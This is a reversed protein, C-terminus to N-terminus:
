ELHQARMFEDARALGLESAKKMQKRASARDGLRLYAVGLGFRVEANAVDLSAAKELDAVSRKFEGRGLSLFGRTELATANEPDLTLARDLDAAARDLVGLDSYSVARNVLTSVADPALRLAADYDRVAAKDDGLGHYVLARNNYASPFSPDLAIAKTFDAIAETSKGLRYYVFGRNNYAYASGPDVAIAAGYEAIAKGSDGSAEYVAARALHPKPGGPDLRAARDLDALASDYEGLRLYVAARNLYVSASDPMLEAAADLDVIAERLLGAQERAHGRNNYMYGYKPGMAIARDYDRLAMNFEGRGDYALARQHYALFVKDPYLEIERTWLTVSDKWVRIQSVTMVSLVSFVVVLLAVAASARKGRWIALRGAGAGALICLALSPLYTYRDAASQRGVQVLGIVPLLTILYYSWVAAIYRRKYLTLLSLATLGSFVVLAAALWGNYFGPGTPYPYIPALGAPVLMKYLYFVTSRLAVLVRVGLPFEEFSGLAHGQRQAWVTMLASVASLVFFPSKEFVLRALAAPRAGAFLRELPYFDLILLVVPLTIAMPKGLLALAFFVLSSIYHRARRYPDLAAYKLYSLISLLFFLACLIDKRESVWAVSEVHLPHVGFLLAAVSASVIVSVSAPASGRARWAMEVLKAALIFVLFTNLAHGATNVLHYGFPDTGWLSYDLAYSFTTLPHWNSLFVKTFIKKIFLLSINRIDPEELIYENDDWNVFCNHLAPVYVLFTFAASLFAFFLILKKDTGSSASGATQDPRDQRM